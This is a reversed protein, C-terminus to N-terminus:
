VQIKGPSSANKKSVLDEMNTHELTTHMGSYLVMGPRIRVKDLISAPQWRTEEM